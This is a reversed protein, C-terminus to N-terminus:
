FTPARPKSGSTYLLNSFFPDSGKRKLVHFSLPRVGKEAVGALTLIKNEIISSEDIVVASVLRAKFRGGNEYVCFTARVLRGEKDRLIKEITNLRLPTLQM